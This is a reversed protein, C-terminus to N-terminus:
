PAGGFGFGAAILAAKLPSGPQQLAAIVLDVTDPAAAILPGGGLVTIRELKEADVEPTDAIRMWIDADAPVVLAGTPDADPGALLVTFSGDAYQAPYWVTAATPSTRPPLLAVDVGTLDPPIAAAEALVTASLEYTRSKRDIRSLTYAM